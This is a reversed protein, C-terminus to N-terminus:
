HCTGDDLNNDDEGHQQKGINPRRNLEIKRKTIDIIILINKDISNGKGFKDYGTNNNENMIGDEVVNGKNSGDGNGYNCNNNNNKRNKNGGWDFVNSRSYIANIYAMGFKMLVVLFIVHNNFNKLPYDLKKNNFLKTAEELQKRNPNSRISNSNKDIGVDNTISDNNDDHTNSRRYEPQNM